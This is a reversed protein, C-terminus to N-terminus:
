YFRIIQIILKFEEISSRMLMPFCIWLPFNYFIWQYLNQSSRQIISNIILITISTNSILIFLSSAILEIINKGFFPSILISASLILYATITSQTSNLIKFGFISKKPFVIEIKKRLIKLQIKM